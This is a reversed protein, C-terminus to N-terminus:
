IYRRSLLSKLTTNMILQCSNEADCPVVFSIFHHLILVRFIGLNDSYKTPLFFLYMFFIRMFLNYMNSMICFIALKAIQFDNAEKLVLILGKMDVMHEEVQLHLLVFDVNSHNKVLTFM